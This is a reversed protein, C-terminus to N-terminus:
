SSIGAVKHILNAIRNMCNPVMEPKSICSGLGRVRSLLADHHFRCRACHCTKIVLGPCAGMNYGLEPTEESDPRPMSWYPLSIAHTHTPYDPISHAPYM